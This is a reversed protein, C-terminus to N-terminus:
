CLETGLKTTHFSMFRDFDFSATNIDEVLDGLTNSNMLALKLTANGLTPSTTSQRVKEYAILFLGAIDIYGL